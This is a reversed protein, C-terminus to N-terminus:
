DTSSPRMLKTSPVGAFFGAISQIPITRGTRAPFQIGIGKEIEAIDKEAGAGGARHKALFPTANVPVDVPRSRLNQATLRPRFENDLFVGNGRSDYGNGHIRARM